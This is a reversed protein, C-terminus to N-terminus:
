HYTVCKPFPILAAHSLALQPSAHPFQNYNRQHVALQKQFDEFSFFKHSAYFYESDKRHSREVKGNHRPTYPRIKKHRIGLQALTKEFLTLPKKQSNGMENLFSLAM